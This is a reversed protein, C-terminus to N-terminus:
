SSLPCVKEIATDQVSGNKNSQLDESRVSFSSKYETTLGGNKAKDNKSPQRQNRDGLIGYM